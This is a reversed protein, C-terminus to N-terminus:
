YNVRMEIKISHDNAHTDSLRAPNDINQFTYNLQAFMDRLFQWKLEIGFCQDTEVTGSLFQKRTGMEATHPTNIDGEGRRFREIILAAHFNRHFLYNTRIYVGDGNQGLWHGIPRDYNKYVNIERTHTYVFPEIRAYEIVLDLDKLNFPAAWRWGSLFAFKNGYFTFPNESTSFDDLFLEFYFRHGARPYLTFDFGMTNNDLDGLHHEAVHFPMLPILYMPDPSRNGYIVAESGALSLWSFLRVELRHAVLYKAGLGSHLKGHFHTFQFHKSQVKMKLLEFRPNDASLMLNGRYGPGWQIRDRGFEIEFWPVQWKIYAEADDSVVNDGSITIPPGQSPNFTEEAIDQGKIFTNHTFLYYSFSKKIQGRIIGGLSTRSIHETEPYQDGSNFVLMENVDLDARIRHPGEDWRILHREYLTSDAPIKQLDLEEFFEGKLQEFWAMETASLINQDKDLKKQVETLMNAVEQRSYPRSQYVATQIVKRTQLRDLFHYVWHNIPVNVSSRSYLSVTVSILYFLIFRTKLKHIMM